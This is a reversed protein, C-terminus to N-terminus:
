HLKLYSIFYAESTWTKVKLSKLEKFREQYGTVHGVQMLKNFEEVICELRIGLYKQM